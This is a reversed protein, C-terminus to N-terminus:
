NQKPFVQQKLRPDIRIGRREQELLYIEATEREGAQVWVLAKALILNVNDPNRALGGDLVEQARDFFGLAALGRSEQLYGSFTHPSSGILAEGELISGIHSVYESYRSRDGAKDAQLMYHYASDYQAKGLKVLGLWYSVEHQNGKKEALAKLLLESEDLRGTDMLERVRELTEDETLELGRIAKLNLILERIRPDDPDMALAARFDTMALDYQMEHQYCLGRLALLDGSRIGNRNMNEICYRAETPYGHAIMENLLSIAFGTEVDRTTSLYVAYHYVLTYNDADEEKLNDFQRAAEEEGTRCGAMVLFIIIMGTMGRIQM